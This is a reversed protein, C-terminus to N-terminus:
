LLINLKEKEFKVNVQRILVKRQNNLLADTGQLACSNLLIICYYRNMFYIAHLSYGLDPWPSPM